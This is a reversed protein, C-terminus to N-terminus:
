LLAERADEIIGYVDGYDGMPLQVGRGELEQMNSHLWDLRQSIATADYLGVLSCVWWDGGEDLHEAEYQIADDATQFPGYFNHGSVPNGTMIIVSM